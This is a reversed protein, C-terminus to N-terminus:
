FGRLTGDESMHRRTARTHVSTESSCIVEMMLAFLILTSTVGLTTGPESITKARIISVGREESIDTRVLTVDWFICNKM